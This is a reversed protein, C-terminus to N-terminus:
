KLLMPMELDIPLMAAPAIGTMLAEPPRPKPQSAIPLVLPTDRRYADTQCADAKETKGKEISGTRRKQRGDKNQQTDSVSSRHRHYRGQQTFIQASGDPDLRRNKPPSAITPLEGTLRQCAKNTIKRNIDPPRSQRQRDYIKEAHQTNTPASIPSLRCLGTPM